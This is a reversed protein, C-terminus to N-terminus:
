WEVQGKMQRARYATKVFGKDVDAVVAILLSTATAGFYVRCDVSSMSYCIRLPQRIANEVLSRFPRMDPHGKLIHGFWTHDHLIIERGLPDILAVDPM